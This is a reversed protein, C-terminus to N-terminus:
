WEVVSRVVSEFIDICTLDLLSAEILNYMIDMCYRMEDKDNKIPMHRVWKLKMENWGDTNPYYKVFRGLASLANDRAM